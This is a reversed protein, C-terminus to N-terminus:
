KLDWTDSAEIAVLAIFCLTGVVDPKGLSGRNAGRGSADLPHCCYVFADRHETAVSGLDCRPSCFSQRYSWCANTLSVAIPNNNSPAYAVLNSMQERM